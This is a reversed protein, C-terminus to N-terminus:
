IRKFKHAKENPTGFDKRCGSWTQIKLIKNGFANKGMQKSYRPSHLTNVTSVIAPIWDRVELKAALIEQSVRDVFSSLTGQRCGVGHRWCAGCTVACRGKTKSTSVVDRQMCLYIYGGITTSVVDRYCELFYAHYWTCYIIKNRQKININM